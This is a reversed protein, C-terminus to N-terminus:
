PNGQVGPVFLDPIAKELDTVKEVKVEKINFIMQRGDNGRFSRKNWTANADQEELMSRNASERDLLRVLNPILLGPM